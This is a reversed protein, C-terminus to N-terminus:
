MIITRCGNGTHVHVTYMTLLCLSCVSREPRRGQYSYVMCAYTESYFWNSSNQLRSSFATRQFRPTPLASSIPIDYLFTHSYYSLSCVLSAVSFLSASFYFCVFVEPPNFRKPLLGHLAKINYITSMYDMAVTITMTMTLIFITQM